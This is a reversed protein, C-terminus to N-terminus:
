FWQAPFAPHEPPGTTVISTHKRCKARSAAPAAPVRSERRGGKLTARRGGKLTAGAGKRLPRGAGESKRLRRTWACSPRMAGRSRPRAGTLHRIRCCSLMLREIKKGVTNEMAAFVVRETTSCTQFRPFFPMELRAGDHCMQVSLQYGSTLDM